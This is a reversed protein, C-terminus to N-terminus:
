SLLDAVPRVFVVACLACVGPLVTLMQFGESFCGLSDNHIQLLFNYLYLVTVFSANHKKLRIRADYKLLGRVIYRNWSVNSM